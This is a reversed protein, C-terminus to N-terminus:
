TRTVPSESPSPQEGRMALAILLRENHGWGLMSQVHQVGAQKEQLAERDTAAIALCQHLSVCDGPSFLWGAAEGRTIAENAPLKAAIVPVGMELALPLAGSTGGDGRTLVAVDAAAFLDSVDAAPILELRSRVRPDAATAARVRQGIESTHPLGAIILAVDEATLRSFADLLVDVNKYARLSGFCLFVTSTEALDLETRVVARPRGTGYVGGHGPHPAVHVAERSLHLHKCALAATQEDNAILVHAVRSLVLPVLRDFIRHLIEHPYVQHITWVLRYGLLRAVALRFMFYSFKLFSLHKAVRRPRRRVRYFAQPWHFHLIDTDRRHRWLWRVKFRAGNVVEIGLDELERYLIEQYPNLDDRPFYALRM